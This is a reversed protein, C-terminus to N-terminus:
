TNKSVWEDFCKKSCVDSDIEYIDIGCNICALKRKTTDTM